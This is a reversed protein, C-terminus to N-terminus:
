TPPDRLVAGRMWIEFRPPYFNLSQSLFCPPIARRADSKREAFISNNLACHAVSRSRRWYETASITDKPSRWAKFPAIAEAPASHRKKEESSSWSFCVSCCSYPRVRHQSKGESVM